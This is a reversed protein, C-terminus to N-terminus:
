DDDLLADLIPNSSGEKVGKVVSISLKARAQPSLCLENCCRFFDKTYSNRCSIVRANYKLEPDENIEQEISFLREFAVAADALIYEDAVSLIGSQEMKKYIDRFMRKQPATLWKPPTPPKASKLKSEVKQQTERDVRLQHGNKTASAKAPRAMRM